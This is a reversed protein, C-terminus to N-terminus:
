KIATLRRIDVPAYTRPMTNESTSAHARTDAFDDLNGLAYRVAQGIKIFTAGTGVRGKELYSSSSALRAAAGKTNTCRAATDM